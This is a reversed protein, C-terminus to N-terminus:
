GPEYFYLTAAGGSIRSWVPRRPAVAAEVRPEPCTAQYIEMWSFYRPESMFGVDQRKRTYRRAVRPDTQLDLALDVADQITRGAPALDWLPVGQRAILQMLPVLFLLAYNQYHSVRDGRAVERPLSGDPALEALALHVARVGYRFLEDDGAVIGIAAAHLARRYYHNNWCYATGPDEIAIQRLSVRALWDDIAETAGARAGMFPRVVAYALGLAILTGELQFWAQPQGRTYHFGSLADAEAWRSLLDVLRDAHARDGSAVFAASLRGTVEELERLDRTAARWGKRDGYFAPIRDVYTVVPLERVTEPSPAACSEIAARLVPDATTRLLAVRAGADFLGADRDTVRYAEV